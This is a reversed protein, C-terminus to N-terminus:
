LSEAHVCAPMPGSNLCPVAFPWVHSLSKVKVKWKLANSFSIAAGELTRAQLIGPVPSGPPSGHLSKATATAAATSVHIKLTHRSLWKLRTQSKAVKHVTARWAERDMPNELLFVPTPQWGRRWPIKRVWPDFSQRKPRRCQWACVLCKGSAGGPFGKLAM